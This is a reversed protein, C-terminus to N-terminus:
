AAVVLDASAPLHSILHYAGRIKFSGTRQRHEPKLLVSRGTRDSINDSREVPTPRIVGALGARAAEIEAIDVLQPEETVAASGVVVGAASCHAMTPHSRPM